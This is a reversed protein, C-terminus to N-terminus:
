PAQRRLKRYITNRSIGLRRSAVSINGQAAEVARRIIEIGAQELTADGSGRPGVREAFDDPLHERGIAAAGEALVAATQLVSALERLNGPWGHRAFLGAVEDSLAPARDGSLRQLIRQAFEAADGRERLSPWRLSFGNLRYYLDERLRGEAILEPAGRRISAAVGLRGAAIDGAREDLRRLLEAQASQSWDDLGDVFVTGGDVPIAERDILRSDSAPPALRVFPRARRSSERHAARALWEKGTGAEGIIMWTIGRDLVRRLKDISARVQRHNGAFEALDPEPRVTGPGAAPVTDVHLLAPATNGPVSAFCAAAAL